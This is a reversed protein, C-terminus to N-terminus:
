QLNSTLNALQRLLWMRKYAKDVMYKINKFKKLDETLITWLLKTETVCELDDGNPTPVLHEFDTNKQLM